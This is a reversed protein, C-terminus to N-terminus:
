NKQQKLKKELMCKKRGATATFHAVRRKPLGMGLVRTIHADGEWIVKAIQTLTLTVPIGMDSLTLQSHPHVFRPSPWVDSHCWGEMKTLPFDWPIPNNKSCGIMLECSLFQSSFQVSNHKAFVEPATLFNNVLLQGGRGQYGDWFDKRSNVRGLKRRMEWTTFKYVFLIKLSEHRFEFKACHRPERLEAKFRGAWLM